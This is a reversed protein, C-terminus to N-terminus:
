VSKFVNMIKSVMKAFEVYAAETFVDSIKQQKEVPKRDKPAEDTRQVFCFNTPISGTMLNARSSGPKKHLM